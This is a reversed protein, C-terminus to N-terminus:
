IIEEDESERKKLLQKELKQDTITDAIELFIVLVLPVFILFFFGYKNKITKNILSIFKLKSEVKGYIKNNTIVPDELINSVGKTHIIMQNNKNEINIIRHTVIKGKYSDKEGLYAIDDGVKLTKKDVEKVLVVDNIDYVGKMSGTLITFIRYGGISKNDGIKQVLIFALYAIIVFLFAVKIITTLVKFIKNDLLKQM